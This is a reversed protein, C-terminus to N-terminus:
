DNEGLVNTLRRTGMWLERHDQRDQGAEVQQLREVEDALAKLGAVSASSAGGRTGDQFEVIINSGDRLRRIWEITNQTNM